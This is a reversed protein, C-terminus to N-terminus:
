KFLCSVQLSLGSEAHVLMGKQAIRVKANTARTIGKSRESPQLSLINCDKKQTRLADRRPDHTPLM